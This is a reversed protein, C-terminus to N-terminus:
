QSTDVRRANRLRLLSAEALTVGNAYSMLHNASNQSSGRSACKTEDRSHNAPWFALGRLITLINRRKFIMHEMWYQSFDIVTSMWSYCAGDKSITILCEWSPEPQPRRLYIAPLASHILNDSSVNRSRGFNVDRSLIFQQIQQKACEKRSM